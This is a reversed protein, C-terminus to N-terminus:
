IYEIKINRYKNYLKFFDKNLELLSKKKDLKLEKLKYKHLYNYRKECCDNIKKESYVNYIQLLEKKNYGRIKRKIYVKGYNIEYEYIDLINDILNNIFKYIFEYIYAKRLMLELDYNNELVDKILKESLDVDTINLVQNLVIVQKTDLVGQNQIIQYIRKVKFISEFIEDKIKININKKSFELFDIYFMQLDKFSNGYEKEKNDINKIINLYEENLYELKDGYKYSYAIIFYISEPFIELFKTKKSIKTKKFEFYKKNIELNDWIAIFRKKGIKNIDCKDMKKINIKNKFLMYLFIYKDIYKKIYEKAENIDKKNIMKVEIFYKFINESIFDYCTEKILYNNVKYSDYDNEIFNMEMESMFQNLIDEITLNGKVIEINEKINREQFYNKLEQMFEDDIFERKM